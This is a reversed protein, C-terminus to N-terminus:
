ADAEERSRRSTLRLFVDELTPRSRHIAILPLRHEVVMELLRRGADADDQTRVRATSAAFEVSVVWPSERLANALTALRDSAAAEVEVTHISQAFRGLLDSVASEVVLRGRDIIAVRDCIREVDDLVHSSLLVTSAPALGRIVVLMDRRGEPDLSSVPEDLLIVPPRGLVAQAIGLRQRMGGSYGAIARDRAGTLGVLDLVEDIRPGLAPERLGSLRGVFELLERGRMWGNFRPAQDLYGILGRRNIEGDGVPLGAVTATGGGATALSALVRLTTSKGAGNPGLFGFVSGAPVALDLGDLAVIEGYRKTLGRIEIAPETDTRRV